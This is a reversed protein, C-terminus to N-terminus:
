FPLVGHMESFKYGLLFSFGYGACISLGVCSLGVIASIIRMQIPSCSGLVFFSYIYILLLASGLLSADISLDKM